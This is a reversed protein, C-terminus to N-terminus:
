LIDITQFVWSQNMTISFTILSTLLIRTKRTEKSIQYQLLFSSQIKFRQEKSIKNHFPHTNKMSKHASSILSHFPCERRAISNRGVLNGFLPISLINRLFAKIDM